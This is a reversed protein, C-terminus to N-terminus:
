APFGPPPFFRFGCVDDRLGIVLWGRLRRLLPRVPDCGRQSDRPRGPSCQRSGAPGASAPPGSGMRPLRSTDCLQCNNVGIRQRQRREQQRRAAQGVHETAAQQVQGAQRDEGERRYPAAKRDARHHQLQRAGQLSDAPRDPEHYRQRQQRVGEAALSRPTADPARPATVPRATAMPGSSPPTSVEPRDQRHIKKTFAGISIAATM